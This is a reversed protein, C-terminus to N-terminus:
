SNENKLPKYREHGEHDETGKTFKLDPFSIYLVFRACILIITEQEKCLADRSDLFGGEM